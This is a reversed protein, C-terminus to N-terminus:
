GLDPNIYIAQHYFREAMETSLKGDFEQQYRALDLLMYNSKVTMTVVMNFFKFVNRGLDGLYILTRQCTGLVWSENSKRNAKLSPRGFGVFYLVM